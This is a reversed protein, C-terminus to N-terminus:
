SDERSEEEEAIEDELDHATERARRREELTLWGATIAHEYAEKAPRKWGARDLADALRLQARANRPHQRLLDGWREVAREKEGKAIAARVLGERAVASEEKALIGSWLDAAEDLRGVREFAEARLLV